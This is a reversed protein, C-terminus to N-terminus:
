IKELNTLREYAIKIDKSQSKKDGAVLLIIIQNEQFCYYIRLNFQRERLEFLGKGLARSHPLALKNGIEKLLAIEKKVYEFQKKSLKDFWKTIPSINSQGWYRIQWVM